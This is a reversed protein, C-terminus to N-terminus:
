IFPMKIGPTFDKGNRPDIGETIKTGTEAIEVWDYVPGGYETSKEM